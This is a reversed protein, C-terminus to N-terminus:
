QLTSCLLTIGGVVDCLHCSVAQLTSLEFPTASSADIGLMRDIESPPLREVALRKLLFQRSPPPGIDPRPGPIVVDGPMVRLEPDASVANTTAISYGPLSGDSYTEIFPNLSPDRTQAQLLRRVITQM